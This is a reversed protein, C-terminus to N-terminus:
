SAKNLKQRVNDSRGRFTMEIGLPGTIKRLTSITINAEPKLQNLLNSPKIDGALATYENVGIIKIIKTLAERWHYGEEILGLFFHKRAEGDEQLDKSLGEEWDISRRAM